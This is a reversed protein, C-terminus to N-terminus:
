LSPIDVISIDDNNDQFIPGTVFRLKYNNETTKVEVDCVGNEIAEIFLQKKDEYISNVPIIKIIAKDSINIKEAKSELNLIYANNKQLNYLNINNTNLKSFAFQQSFLLIILITLYKKM